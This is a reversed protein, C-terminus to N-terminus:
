TSLTTASVEFRIRQLDLEVLSGPADSFLDGLSVQDVEVRLVANDGEQACRPEKWRGGVRPGIVRSSPRNVPHTVHRTKEFDIARIPAIRGGGVPNAV